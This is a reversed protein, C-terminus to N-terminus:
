SSRPQDAVTIIDVIRKKCPADHREVRVNGLSLEFVLHPLGHAECAQLEMRREQRRRGVIAVKKGLLMIKPGILM